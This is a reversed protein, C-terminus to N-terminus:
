FSDLSVYLLKCRHTPKNSPDAGYEILVSIAEVNQIKVALLLPTNGINDCDEIGLYFRSGNSWNYLLEILDSISNEYIAKHLPYYTIDNSAIKYGIEKSYPNGNALLFLHVFLFYHLNDWTTEKIGRYITSCILCFLELEFM